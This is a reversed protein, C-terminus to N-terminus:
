RIGPLKSKKEKPKKDKKAPAAKKPAPKLAAQERMRRLHYTIFHWMM